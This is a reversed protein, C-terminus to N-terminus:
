SGESMTLCSGKTIYINVFDSIRSKKNLNVEGQNYINATFKVKGQSRLFSIVKRIINKM